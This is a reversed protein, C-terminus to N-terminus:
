GLKTHVLEIGKGNAPDLNRSYRRTEDSDWHEHVGLSAVPKGGQIYKTGSPPNAALAQEHMYDDANERVIMWPRNQNNPDINNKTQSYLIDLGVSDLAVGDLSALICSPWEPNEYPHNKNFFPANPFHVAYSSHKHASYLGDLMFLITKQGLNPSAQLDVLPSYAHPKAERNTNMVGHLDSPGEISGFNNKGTMTVATQGEDGKEMNSYPYSHCKMIAINILYSADMIQQPINVAKEYKVGNSYDMGNFWQPQEMWSYDRYVPHKQEDVSEVRKMFRVDKFDTWVKQLVEKYVFRMTDYVIIKDEPVRAHKVLQEVKAYITQPSVDTYNNTRIPKGTANMNVKVAVIEGKPYGTKGRDLTQNHHQFIAKWADRYNKQGSVRTILNAVM